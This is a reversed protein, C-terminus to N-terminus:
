RDAYARRWGAGYSLVYKDTLMPEAGDLVM